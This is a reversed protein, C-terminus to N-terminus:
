RAGTSPKAPPTDALSVPRPPLRVHCSAVGLMVEFVAFIANPVADQDAAIRENSLTVCNRFTSGYTASILAIDM